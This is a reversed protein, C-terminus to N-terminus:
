SLVGLIKLIAGGLITLIIILRLVDQAHLSATHARGTQLYASGAYFEEGILPEQATAFLIAQGTLNDTGALSFKSKRESADTILAVENSFSGALVNASVTEDMVIPITGAAYSFPTLGTLQADPPGKAESDRAQRNASLLTDRTLIQLTGEGATAIPPTDSESTIDAIRRLMSLGIFSAASQSGLLSAAGISLHLRTGDEVALGIARTLRSFAPIERLQLTSLRRSLLTFAIILGFFIIVFLLGIIETWGSLDV